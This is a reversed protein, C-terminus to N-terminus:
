KQNHNHKFKNNDERELNSIRDSKWIPMYYEGTLVPVYKFDTYFSLKRTINWDILVSISEDYGGARLALERHHMLSVHLTHNFCFMFDRNYDRSVQIFKHLPYRKGNTEDKIFQVAYLDSYVAGVETNEDLAQAIEELRAPDIDVVAFREVRFLGLFSSALARVPALALLGAVVLVTAVGIAIRQATKNTRFKELMSEKRRQEFTMQLTRLARQQDPADFAGPSLSELLSGVRGSQDHLRELRARCGDCQDIHAEVARKENPDLAGDLYATLRGESLHGM